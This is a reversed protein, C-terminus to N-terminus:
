RHLNNLPNLSNYARVKICTKPAFLFGASLFAKMFASLMRLTQDHIYKMNCTYVLSNASSCDPLRAKQLEASYCYVNFRSYSHYHSLHFSYTQTHPRTYYYLQRINLNLTQLKPASPLGLVCNIRLGVAQVFCLHALILLQIPM